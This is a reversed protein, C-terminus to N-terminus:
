FHPVVDASLCGAYHRMIIEPSNGVWAAVRAVPVQADLAMTIFTHRTNYLCRYRSVHGSKVLESVIGAYTKSGSRCGKWVQNTFKGNDIPLGKPSTFVLAEPSVHQEKAARTLLAGDTSLQMPANAQKLESLLQQLQQNCPFRRSKGTKTPKRIGLQSDYSEAFTIFSFDPSIHKWQLAIAEGTRCGTFFLFKVFAVYHPRKDAFAKIIADREACTFPDINKTQTPQRISASMQAFPNRTIIGSDEAWRCCASLHMLVRKAANASLTQLLHNRIAVAERIDQTSLQRIHNPLKRLYDKEYTTQALQPRKYEAYKLWLSLLSVQKVLTQKPRFEQKYRALTTDLTGRSIDEEIAWAVVQAKKRNDDTDELGTYIYRSCGAAIARPLRLRLKGNKNEIAIVLSM